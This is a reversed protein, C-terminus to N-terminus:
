RADKVLMEVEDCIHSAPLDSILKGAAPFVPRSHSRYTLVDAQKGFLTVSQLDCNLALNATFSDVGLYLDAMHYLAIDQGIDWYDDHTHIIRNKGTWQRVLGSHWEAADPGANLFITGGLRDALETFCALAHAVPWRRAEDQAFLNGIIWPRPLHQYRAQQKLDNEDPRIPTSASLAQYQAAGFLTELYVDIAAIFPRHGWDNRRTGGEALSLSQSLMLRDALTGALGIRNPIGAIQCALKFSSSKHLIYAHSYRHKALQRVFALFARPQSLHRAASINIIGGAWDCRQAIKSMIAPHLCGIDIQTREDRQAIAQMQTFHYLQDGIGGCVFAISKHM